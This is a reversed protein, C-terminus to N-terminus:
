DTVVVFVNGISTTATLTENDKISTKLERWSGDVFTHIAANEYSGAPLKLEVAIDGKIPTPPLFAYPGVILKGDIKAPLGFSKM